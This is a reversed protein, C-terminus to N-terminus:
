ITMGLLLAISWKPDSMCLMVTFFNQDQCEQMNLKTLILMSAYAGKM